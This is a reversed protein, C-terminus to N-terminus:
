TGEVEGDAGSWHDTLGPDVDSSTDGMSSPRDSFLTEVTWWGVGFLEFAAALPSRARLASDVDRATRRDLGDSPGLLMRLQDGLQDDLEDGSGDPDLEDDPEHDPHHDNM